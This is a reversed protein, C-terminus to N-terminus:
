RVQSAAMKPGASDTVAKEDHTTGSLVGSGRSGGSLASKETAHM